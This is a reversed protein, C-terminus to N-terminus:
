YDCRYIYIYIYIYVSYQRIADITDNDHIEFIKAVAQKVCDDLLKVSSKSLLMAEASYLIFPLCYSTFPQVSTLESNADKSKSYISNFTRCFKMQM